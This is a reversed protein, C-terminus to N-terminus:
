GRKPGACKSIRWRACVCRIDLLFNTIWENMWEHFDHLGRQWPILEGLKGFTESWIYLICWWAHFDGGPLHYTVWSYHVVYFWDAGVVASDWIQTWSSINYRDVSCKTKSHKTWYFHSSTNRKSILSFLLFSFFLTLSASLPKKNKAEHQKCVYKGTGIRHCGQTIAVM